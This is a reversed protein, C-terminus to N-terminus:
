GGDDGGERPLGDGLAEEVPPCGHTGDKYEGRPRDGVQQCAADWGTRRRRIVRQMPSTGETATAAESPRPPTLVSSTTLWTTSEITSGNM